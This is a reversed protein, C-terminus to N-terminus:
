KDNEEDSNQWQRILDLLHHPPIVIFYEDGAIGGTETNWRIHVEDNGCPPDLIWHGSYYQTM